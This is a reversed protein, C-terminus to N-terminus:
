YKEKHKQRKGDYSQLLGLQSFYEAKGEQKKYHFKLGFGIITHLM